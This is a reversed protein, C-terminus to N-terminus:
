GFFSQTGALMSTRDIIAPAPFDTFGRAGNTFCDFGAFFFSGLFCVLADAAYEVASSAVINDM